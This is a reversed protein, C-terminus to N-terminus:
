NKTEPELGLWQYWGKHLVLWSILGYGAQDPIRNGSIATDTNWQEHQNLPTFTEVYPVARRTCVEAYAASLLRLTNSDADPRPPPGVVFPKLQLRNANDLLNALHLRSRTASIKKDIDYSGLGIVLRNDADRDIRPIVESEWRKTLTATDEGPFALSIPTLAGPFSTHALVRGTWGLARSDGVGTILEDGVFFLRLNRTM